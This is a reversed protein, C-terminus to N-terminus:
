FFFFVGEMSLIGECVRRSHPFPCGVLLCQQRFGSRCKLFHFYVGGRLATCSEKSSAEECCSPLLILKVASVLAEHGLFIFGHRAFCFLINCCGMAYWSFSGTSEVIERLERTAKSVRGM